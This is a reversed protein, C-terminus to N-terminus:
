RSGTSGFGQTGRDSQSLCETDKVLHWHVRNYPAVVMQAIRDGRYITFPEKGHNILIVKVEGHYDADITGPSNLVTVGYKLALGSRPRIQAEYRKPIDLYLGTPISKYESPLIIVPDEVAAFLDMGSSYETQRTPLTLDFTSRHVYVTVQTPKLFHYLSKTDM